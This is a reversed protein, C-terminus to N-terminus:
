YKIVIDIKIRNESVNSAGVKAPKEQASQVEPPKDDPGEPKQLDKLEEKGHVFRCIASAKFFVGLAWLCCYVLTKHPALTKNEALIEDMDGHGYRIYYLITIKLLFGQVITAVSLYEISIGVWLPWTCPFATMIFGALFVLLPVIKLIKHKKM